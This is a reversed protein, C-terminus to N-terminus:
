APRLALHCLAALLSLLLAVWVRPGLIVAGPAVPFALTHSMAAIKFAHAPDFRPDTALEMMDRRSRYRVLAGMSWGPDPEVGWSEVYGGAARGLFAPHGARLFLRPMFHRTYVGLVDPAPRLGGTEPDKVPDEHLRILNLMHFERGDDSELFARVAALRQPDPEAVRSRLAELYADIEDRSLPGRLGVYWVSFLAYLLAAAGWIWLASM